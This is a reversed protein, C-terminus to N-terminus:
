LIDISHMPNIIVVTRHTPILCSPCNSYYNSWENLCHNHIMHGCPLIRSELYIDINKVYCIICRTKSECAIHPIISEILYTKMFMYLIIELNSAREPQHIIKSYNICNISVILGIIIDIITLISIMKFSVCIQNDTGNPDYDNSNTGCSIFSMLIFTILGIILTIYRPLRFIWILRSNGYNIISTWIPESITQGYFNIIRILHFIHLPIILLHGIIYALCARFINTNQIYQPTIICTHIYFTSLGCIYLIIFIKYLVYKFGIRLNLM